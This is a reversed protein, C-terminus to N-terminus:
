RCITFDACCSLVRCSWELWTNSITYFTCCFFLFYVIFNFVCHSLLSRKFEAWKPTWWEMRSYISLPYNYAHSVVHHSNFRDTEDCVGKLLYYTAASCLGETANRMSKKWERLAGLAHELTLTNCCDRKTGNEHDSQIHKPQYNNRKRIGITKKKSEEERRAKARRTYIKVRTCKKKAQWKAHTHKPARAWSEYVQGCVPGHHANEGAWVNMWVCVCLDDCPVFCIPFLMSNFLLTPFFLM